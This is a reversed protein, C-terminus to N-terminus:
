LDNQSGYLSAVSNVDEDVQQDNVDTAFDMTMDDREDWISLPADDDEGYASLRISPSYDNSPPFLGLQASLSAPSEKLDLM